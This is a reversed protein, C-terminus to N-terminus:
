QQLFEIALRGHSGEINAHGEFIIRDELILTKYIDFPFEGCEPVKVIHFSHGNHQISCNSFEKEMWDLHSQNNAGIVKIKGLM